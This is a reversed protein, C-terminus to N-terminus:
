GLSQPYTHERNWDGVNGGNDNKSRSRHQTTSGSNNWGYILLVKSNNDPDEDTIKLADWVESYTLFYQHQNTTITALENKLTLGTSTITTQGYYSQLHSPVVLQAFTISSFLLLLLLYKHKM